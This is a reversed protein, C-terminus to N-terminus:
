LVMVQPCVSLKEQTAAQCTEPFSIGLAPTVMSFSPFYGLGWIGGCYFAGFLQPRPLVTVLAFPIQPALDERKIKTM